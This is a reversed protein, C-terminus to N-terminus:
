TKGVYIGNRYLGNRRLALRFVSKMKETFADSVMDFGLYEAVMEAVHERTYEYGKRIVSRIVKIMEQDDYHNITPTASNYGYGDRVIIKRLIAIRIYSELEQRIQKSIRKVGLRKGVVQLLTYENIDTQGLVATRFARLVDNKEFRKDIQSVPQIRLKDENGGMEPQAVAPTKPEAKWEVTKGKNCGGSSKSHQGIKGLDL